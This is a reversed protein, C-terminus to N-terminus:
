ATAEDRAEQQRLSEAGTEQDHRWQERNRQAAQQQEYRLTEQREREFNREPYRGDGAHVIPAGTTAVAGGVALTLGLLYVAVVHSLRDDTTRGHSM